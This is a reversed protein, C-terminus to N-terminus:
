LSCCAQGADDVAVAAAFEGGCDDLGEGTVGQADCEVEGARPGEFGTLVDVEVDGGDAPPGGVGEGNGPTLGGLDDSVFLADGHGVLIGEAGVLFGGEREEDAATGAEGVFEEDAGLVAHVGADGELGEGLAGVAADVGEVGVAGNEEEGAADADGVVDGEDAVQDLAVGVAGHGGAAHGEDPDDLGGFVELPDPGPHCTDQRHVAPAFNQADHQEDGSRAIGLLDLAGARRHLHERAPRVHIRKHAHLRLVLNTSHSHQNTPIPPQTIIHPLHTPLLLIPRINIVNLLTKSPLQM